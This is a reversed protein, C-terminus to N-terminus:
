FKMVFTVAPKKSRTPTDGVRFSQGKKRGYLNALGLGVTANSAIDQQAIMGQVLPLPRDFGRQELLRLDLTHSRAVGAVDAPALGKMQAHVAGAALLPPVAAVALWKRM